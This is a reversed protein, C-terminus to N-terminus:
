VRFPHFSISRSSSIYSVHSVFGAMESAIFSQFIGASSWITASEESGFDIFSSTSRSCLIMPTFFHSSEIRKPIDSMFDFRIYTVLVLIFRM